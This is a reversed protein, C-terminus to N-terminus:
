GYHLLYLHFGQWHSAAEATEGQGTKAKHKIGRRYQGHLVIREVVSQDPGHEFIAGQHTQVVDGQVALNLKGSVGGRQGHVALPKDHWAHSQGARLLGIVADRETVFRAVPLELDDVLQLSVPMEEALLDPKDEGLLALATHIGGLDEGAIQFARDHPFVLGAVAAPRDEEPQVPRGRRFFEAQKECQLIREQLPVALVSM